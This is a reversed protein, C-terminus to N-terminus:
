FAASVLKLEGDVNELRSVGARFQQEPLWRWRAYYISETIAVAAGPPLHFFAVVVNERTLWRDWSYDLLRTAGGSASLEYRCHKRVLVLSAFVGSDDGEVGPVFSVDFSEDPTPIAEARALEVHIPTRGRRAKGRVNFRPVMM